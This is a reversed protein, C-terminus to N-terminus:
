PMSRRRTSCPDSMARRTPTAFVAVIGSGALMAALMQARAAGAPTLSPDSGTGKELHRIIYVPNAADAPQGIALMSLLAVCLLARM